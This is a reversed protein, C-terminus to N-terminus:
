PGAWAENVVGMGGAPAFSHYGDLHPDSDPFDRRLHAGRSEHRALASAAVLRALPHTETNLLQRLGEEERELGAGRWVAERTARDPPSVNVPLTTGPTTPPPEDLGAAAARGGFVFCESLSNSALRNAGHLGTCATEGVAYLGAVTTRGHLDAVVGGMVYHAAPSVPVLETMPDLGAERLAQVINPFRGPDVGRMDLHVHPQNTEDM